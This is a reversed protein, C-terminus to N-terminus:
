HSAARVSASPDRSLMARLDAALESKTEGLKRLSGALVRRVSKDPDAALDRGLTPSQDPHRVWLIAALQRTSANPSGAFMRVDVTLEEPPLQALAYSAQNAAPADGTRFLATAAGVTQRFQAKDHALVAATTVAQPVLSGFAMNIHFASLPHLGEKLQEDLQSFTPAAALSIARDFLATKVSAPLTTAVIMVARLADTRNVEIESHDEAAKMAAEAFSVRDDDAVLRVFSAIRPLDSGIRYEGPKREPRHIATELLQRAQELLLPHDDELFLLADLAAQCGATALRRLEEIFM